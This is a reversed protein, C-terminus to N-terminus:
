GDISDRAFSTPPGNNTRWAWQLGPAIANPTSPSGTPVSISVSISVFMSAFMSAFLHRHVSIEKDPSFLWAFIALRHSGIPVVFLLFVNPADHLASLEIREVKLLPM